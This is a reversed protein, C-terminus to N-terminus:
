INNMSKRMKVISSICLYVIEKNLSIIKLVLSIIILCIVVIVLYEVINFYSGLLTELHIYKDIFFFMYNRNFDRVIEENLKFVDYNNYYENYYYWFYDIPTTENTIINEYAKTISKEKFYPSGFLIYDLWSTFERDKIRMTRHSIIFTITLDEVSKNVLIHIWQQILLCFFILIFLM